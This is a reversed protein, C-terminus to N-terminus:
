CLEEAEVGAAGCGVSRLTTITFTGGDTAVDGVTMAGTTTTGGALDDEPSIEPVAVALEAWPLGVRDGLPGAPADAGAAEGAGRVPERLV